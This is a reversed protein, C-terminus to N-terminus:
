RSINKLYNKYIFNDTDEGTIHSVVPIENPNVWNIGSQRNESRFELILGETGPSDARGSTNSVTYTSKGESDKNTVVIENLSPTDIYPIIEIKKGLAEAATLKQVNLANNLDTNDSMDFRYYNIVCDFTQQVSKDVLIDYIYYIDCIITMKKFKMSFDLQQYVTGDNNRLIIRPALCGNIYKRVPTSM